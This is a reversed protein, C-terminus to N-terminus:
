RYKSLIGNDYGNIDFRTGTEINIWTDYRLKWKNNGM